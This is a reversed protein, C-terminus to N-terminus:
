CSQKFYHWRRQYSICQFYDEAGTGVSLHLYVKNDRLELLLKNERVYTSLSSCMFFTYPHVCVCVCVNYAPLCQACPFLHPLKLYSLGLACTVVTGRTSLTSIQISTYRQAIDTLWISSWDYSSIYGVHIHMGQSAALTAGDNLSFSPWTFTPRISTECLTSSASYHHLPWMRCCCDPSCLMATTSSRSSSNALRLATYQLNANPVHSTRTQRSWAFKKMECSITSLSRSCIQSLIRCYQVM